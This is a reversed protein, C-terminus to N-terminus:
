LIRDLDFYELFIEEFIVAFAFNKHKHLMISTAYLRDSFDIM